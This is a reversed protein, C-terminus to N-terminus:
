RMPRFFVMKPYGCNTWVIKHIDQGVILNHAAQYLLLKLEEDDATMHYADGNMLYVTLKYFYREKM